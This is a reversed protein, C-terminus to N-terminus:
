ASPSRALAATRRFLSTSGAPCNRAGPGAPGYRGPARGSASPARRTRTPPEGPDQVRRNARAAAYPRRHHGAPQSDEVMVAGRVVDLVRSAGVLVCCQEKRWAVRISRPRESLNTIGDQATNHPNARADRPQAFDGFTTSM